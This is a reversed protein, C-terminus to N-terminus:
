YLRERAPFIWDDYCSPLLDGQYLDVAGELLAPVTDADDAREAQDLAREFDAVDLTFPADPLWHLTKADAHFFRDPQPLARRLFHVQKRLNTRAQRETSDPWLLFALHQRSQPAERHLVLYALLSQLRPTDVSTLPRDDHTLRFDGLLHIYLAPTPSQPQGLQM